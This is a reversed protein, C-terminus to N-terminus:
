TAAKLREVAELHREVVPLGGAAFSCLQPNDGNDLFHSLLTATEKHALLQQDLYTADFSDDPAEKLHELMKQRRADLKTPPPAVGRTENMELAARLQHTSATHDVIMKAAFARVEEKRARKAALEGALIEYADGVAAEHVFTDADSTMSAEMKGAVGGLVDSAKNMAHKVPGAM